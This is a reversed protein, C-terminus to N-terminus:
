KRSKFNLTVSQTVNHHMAAGSTIPQSVSYPASTSYSPASAPIISLIYQSVPNPQATSYNYPMCQLSPAYAKGECLHINM